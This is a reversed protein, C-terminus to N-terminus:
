DEADWLGRYYRMREADPSIGYSDFVTKEWGKGYNWGLSLTAVALDAWRDAVGLDGLDVHGCWDGAADVLTNPACPDGHCVVLLDIPPPEALQRQMKPSLRSVREEVSWSYPCKRVPLRDHLARLGQGIARVAPEPDAIWHPAVATDGPIGATHLWHLPGDTDVALVEPVTLFRGAWWLRDAERRMDAAPHPPGVKVFERGAGDGIRFTCGGIENDWVATVSRGAAIDRVVGPM